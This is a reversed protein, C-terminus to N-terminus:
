TEYEEGSENLSYGLQRMASEIKDVVQDISLGDTNLILADTAPRLPAHARQSDIEDRLRVSNLVQQYTITEGRAKCEEHRRRAREEASAELFLKLDANPLVVTGIDRGAMVIRVNAAICRQQETLAQRVGLYTSVLSVAADVVPQRIAWTVDQGDACITNQRGDDKTPPTVEILLSQALATVAAEDQISIGRELAAWTVARYMVGTDFFLYNLRRALISGVTSKGSAAAGDIAIVWPQTL